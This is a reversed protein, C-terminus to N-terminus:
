LSGFGTAAHYGSFSGFGTIAQGSFRREAALTQRHTLLNAIASCRADQKARILRQEQTLQAVHASQVLRFPGHPAPDAAAPKPLHRTTLNM